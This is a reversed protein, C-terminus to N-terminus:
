DGFLRKLNPRSHLGSRLIEAYRREYDTFVGYRWFWVFHPKDAYMECFYVKGNIRYEKKRKVITM